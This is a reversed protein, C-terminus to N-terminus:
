LVKEDAKRWAPDVICIFKLAARGTNRICQRANPPIYVTDGERVPASKGNIFMKGRGKLIFYVESTKLKHLYTTKGKPVVAHALSYRLKLNEKRPHLMERLITNDGAIFEKCSNLKRVLM